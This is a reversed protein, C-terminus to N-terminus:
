DKSIDGVQADTIRVLDVTRLRLSEDHSGAEVVVSEREALRRDVLVRDGAPGGYPPVAGLEFEGYDRALDAEGALRVQHKAGGVLERVKRVDLRDSAALVARVYGGPTALVITKGVEDSSIGLAEAEAAATETRAHPLLEYEVGADELPKTVDAKAMGGGGDVTASRELVADAVQVTAGVRLNREAKEVLARGYERHPGMGLEWEAHALKGARRLASRSLARSLYHTTVTARMYSGQTLRVLEDALERGQVRAITHWREPEEAPDQFQVYYTPEVVV